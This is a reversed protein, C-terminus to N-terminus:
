RPHWCYLELYYYLLHNWKIREVIISNILESGLGFRSNYILCIFNSQCSVVKIKHGECLGLERLRISCELPLNLKKIYVVEGNKIQSLPCVNNCSCQCNIM